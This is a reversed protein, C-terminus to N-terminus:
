VVEDDGRAVSLQWWALSAALIHPKGGFTVDVHLRGM